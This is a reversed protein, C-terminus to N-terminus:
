LNRSGVERSLFQVEQNAHELFPNAQLAKRYAELAEKKTGQAELVRGLDDLAQYHQPDRDLAQKLDALALDYEARLYHVRARLYWVEADEPAMAVTADLIELALGLDSATTFREARSILLDVTPSGTVRWLAEINTTIPAAAEADKAKSLQTYLEALMKSRDAPSALAPAVSPAGLNGETSDQGSPPTAGESGPKLDPRFLSRDLTRPGSTANSPTESSPAEASPQEPSPAESSPAEADDPAIQAPEEVDTPDQVPLDVAKATTGPLLLAASLLATFLLAEANPSRLRVSRSTRM